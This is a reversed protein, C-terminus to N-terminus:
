SVGIRVRVKMRPQAPNSAWSSSRGLNLTWSYRLGWIRCFLLGLYRFDIYFYLGLVFRHLM